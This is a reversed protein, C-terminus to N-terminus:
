KNELLAIREKLQQIERNQKQVLATLPAILEDYRLSWSIQEDPIDDSYEEFDDMDLTSALYIGVDGVTAEAEDRIDQAYFGFHTRGSQGNKMTFAAPKLSMVFNEVEEDETLYSIHNKIKKDSTVATNNVYFTSCYAYVRYNGDGASLQVRNNNNYLSLYGNPNNFLGRNNDYILISNAKINGNHTFYYKSDTNGYTTRLYIGRFYGNGISTIGYSGGGSKLTDGVINNSANINHVYLNKWRKDGAGLDKEKNTYPFIGTANIYSSYNWNQEANQDDLNNNFCFALAPNDSDWSYMQVGTTFVGGSGNSRVRGMRIKPALATKNYGATIRLEACDLGGNNYLKIIGTESIANIQADISSDSITSPDSTMSASVAVAGSNFIGTYANVNQTSPTTGEKTTTTVNIIDLMQNGDADLPYYINSSGSDTETTETKVSSYSLTVYQSVGNPNNKGYTTTVNGSTPTGSTLTLYDIGYVPEYETTITPQLTTITQQSYIGRNFITWGYAGSGIKGTTAIITGTINANNATLLGASTVKFIGKGLSIGDKGIYIGDVTDSALTNKTTPNYIATNSISFGNTTNQGIYGSTAKIAGTINAESAYLKGDEDVGFNNGVILKWNLKNADLSTYIGYADTSLYIFQDLTSNPTGAEIGGKSLKLGNSDLTANPTSGRRLQLSGSTAYLNPNTGGTAGITINAGNSALSISNGFSSTLVGSTNYFNLNTSSLQMGLTGETTVVNNSITPFRYLNIAANSGDLDIVPTKNYGLSIHTAAFRANYYYTEANSTNLGENTSRGSVFWGDYTNDTGKFFNKTRVNLANINYNSDTLAKNLVVDSWKKTNDSLTTELTIYYNGNVVYEPVMSTWANIRNDTYITTLDDPKEPATGTTLYYLERTSVVSAGDTIDTITINGYCVQAM